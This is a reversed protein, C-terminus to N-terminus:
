RDLPIPPPRADKLNPFDINPLSSEPSIVVDDGICDDAAGNSSSEFPSAWSSDDDEPKEWASEGTTQNYYYVEGTNPDDVEMWGAPLDSKMSDGSAVQESNAADNTSHADDVPPKEGDNERAAPLDTPPAAVAEANNNRQSQIM